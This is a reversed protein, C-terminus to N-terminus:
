RRLPSAFRIVNGDADAVHLERLKWPMDKPRMKINARRQKLEAYYADVDPVFVMSWADGRGQCQQCLFFLADGRKVAGFDPPDGDEWLVKFGLVDRYHRQAKRLSAVRFIPVAPSFGKRGHLAEDAATSLPPPPDDVCGAAFCCFSFVAVVVVSRM